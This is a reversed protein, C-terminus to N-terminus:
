AREQRESWKALADLDFTVHLTLWQAGREVQVDAVPEDDGGNNGFADDALLGKEGIWDAACVLRENDLAIRLVDKLKDEIPAESHDPEQEVHQWLLRVFAKTFQGAGEMPKVHKAWLGGGVRPEAVEDNDLGITLVNDVDDPRPARRPGRHPPPPPPRKRKQRRGIWLADALAAADTPEDVFTGRFSRPM